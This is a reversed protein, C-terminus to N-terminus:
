EAESVSRKRRALFRNNCEHCRYPYIQLVSAANEIVGRRHSRHTDSGCNPCPKTDGRPRSPAKQESSKAVASPQVPTTKGGAMTHSKAPAKAATLPRQAQQRKLHRGSRPLTGPIVFARFRLNCGDCLLERFGVIRVLLTDPAYGRRIRSSGCKPCHKM